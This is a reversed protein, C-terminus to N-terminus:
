SKACISILAALNLLMGALYTLPKKNSSVFEPSFYWEHMPLFKQLHDLNSLM